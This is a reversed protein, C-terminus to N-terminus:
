KPLRPKHLPQYHHITKIISQELCIEVLVYFWTKLWIRFHTGWNLSENEYWALRKDVLYAELEEDKIFRKTGKPLQRAYKCLENSPKHIAASYKGNRSKNPHQEMVSSPTPLEIKEDTLNTKLKGKDDLFLLQTAEQELNQIKCQLTELELDLKQKKAQCIKQRKELQKRPEQAYNTWQIRDFYQGYQFIEKQERELLDNQYLLNKLKQECRLRESDSDSM